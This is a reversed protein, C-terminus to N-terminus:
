WEVEVGYKEALHKIDAWYVNDDYTWYLEKIKYFIERATEKQDRYDANYLAEAEIRAELKNPASVFKDAPMEVAELIKAIEKIRKERESM